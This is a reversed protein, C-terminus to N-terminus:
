QNRHWDKNYSKEDYKNRDDCKYCKENRGHFNNKRSSNRESYNEHKKKEYYKEYNKYQNKQDYKKIEQNNDSHNWQRKKNGWREEQHRNNKNEKSYGHNNAKNKDKIPSKVSSKNKFNNEKKTVKNSHSNFNSDKKIQKQDQTKIQNQPQTKAKPKDLENSKPINIHNNSEQIDKLESNLEIQKNKFKQKMKGTLKITEDPQIVKSKEMENVLDNMVTQLPEQKWNDMKDVVKKGQENHGELSIVNLQKDLVLSVKAESDISVKGAALAKKDNWNEFLFSMLILASAIVVPVLKPINIKVRNNLIIAHNPFQIEEGISYSSLLKKCKLYEGNATLVVVYTRHVKLVIGNNM